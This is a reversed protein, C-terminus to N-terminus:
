HPFVYWGGLRLAKMVPEQAQLYFPEPRLDQLLNEILCSRGALPKAPIALLEGPLDLGSHKLLLV